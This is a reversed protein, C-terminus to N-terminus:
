RRALKEWTANGGTVRPGYALGGKPMGARATHLAFPAKVALPLARTTACTSSGPPAEARPYFIGRWPEYRWGSIGIRVM